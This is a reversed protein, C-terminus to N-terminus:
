TLVLFYIDAVKSLAGFDMGPTPYLNNRGYGADIEPDYGTYKTWIWANTITTYVRLHQIAFKKTLKTPLTYGVTVNNLRLFSGDEIGGSHVVSLEYFPMGTETNANLADLEAPDYVRALDGNSDVKFIHYWNSVADSFNHFPLKNGNSNALKNANYIDNGYSGTLVM